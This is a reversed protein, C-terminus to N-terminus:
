LNCCINNTDMYQSYRTQADVTIKFDLKDDMRMKETEFTYFWYKLKEDLTIFSENINKLTKRLLRSFRTLYNNAKQTEVMYKQQIAGSSNFIFSSQDHGPFIQASAMSKRDWLQAQNAASKLKLKGETISIFGFSFM